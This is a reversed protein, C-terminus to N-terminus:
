KPCMKDLVRIQYSKAGRQHWKQIASPSEDDVDAVLALVSKEFRSEVDGHLIIGNNISFLKDDAESGFIKTMIDQGSAYGFTHAAHM